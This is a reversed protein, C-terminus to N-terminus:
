PATAPADADGEDTTPCATAGPALGAMLAEMTRHFVGSWELGADEDALGKLELSVLGHCTAWVMVALEKPDAPALAGADIARQLKLELLELTGLAEIQAEESPEFDRDPRLFMVAYYTPNEVAFRHYAAGCRELDACPDDTLGGELMAARLAAFGERFLAELVGDKGGFRSYVNMTSMGAETAIRRVTLAAPGEEALLTQAAQLLATRVPDDPEPVRRVTGSAVAGSAVGTGPARDVDM